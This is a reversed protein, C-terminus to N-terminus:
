VAFHPDDRVGIGLNHKQQMKYLAIEWLDFQELVEKPIRGINRKKAEKIVDRSHKCKNWLEKHIVEEKANALASLQIWYSELYNYHEEYSKKLRAEIIKSRLEALLRIIVANSNWETEVSFDQGM